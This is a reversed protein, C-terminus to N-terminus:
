WSQINMQTALNNKLDESKKGQTCATGYDRSIKFLEKVVPGSAHVRAKRNFSM